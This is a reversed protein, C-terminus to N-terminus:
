RARAPQFKGTLRAALASDLTAFNLGVGDGLALICETDMMWEELGLPTGTAFDLADPGIRGPFPELEDNWEPMLFLEDSGGLVGVAVLRELEAPELLFAGRHVAPRVGEARLRRRIEPMEAPHEIADLVPIVAMEFHPLLDVGADVVDAISARLRGHLLQPTM